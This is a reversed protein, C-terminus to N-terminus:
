LCKIMNGKPKKLLYVDVTWKSAPPLGTPLVSPQKTHDQTKIRLILLFLHLTKMRAKLLADKSKHLVWTNWQRLLWQSRSRQHDKVTRSPSSPKVSEFSADRRGRQTLTRAMLMWPHMPQGEAAGGLRSCGCHQHGHESGKTMLGM